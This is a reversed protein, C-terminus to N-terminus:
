SSLLKVNGKLIRENGVTYCFGTMIPGRNGIKSQSVDEMFDSDHRLSGGEGQM